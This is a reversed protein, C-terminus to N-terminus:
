LGDIVAASIRKILQLIVIFFAAEFRCRKKIAAAADATCVSIALM